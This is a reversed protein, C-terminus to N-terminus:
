TGKMKSITEKLDPNLEIAKNFDTEANEKDKILWKVYGRYLWTDPIAPNLRISTSFADLAPQMKDGSALAYGLYYWVEANEPVMESAKKLDSIAVEYQKQILYIKGRVFYSEPIQGGLDIAKTFDSKANEQDDKAAYALGRLHFAADDTEVKEMYHNYSQIAGDYDNLCFQAYGKSKYVLNDNDGLNIATNFDQLGADWKELKVAMDGRYHYAMPDNTNRERIEKDFVDWAEQYHYLMLLSYGYVMTAEHTYRNDLAQKSLTLANSFDKNQIADFAKQEITTWQPTTEVPAVEVTRGGADYFEYEKKSDVMGLPLADRAKEAAGYSSSNGVSAGIYYQGDKNIGSYICGYGTISTSVIIKPSGDCDQMCKQIAADRAESESSAGTVVSYKNTGPCLAVASQAHIFPTGLSTAALVLLLKLARKIM